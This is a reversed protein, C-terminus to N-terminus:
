FGHEGFSAVVGHPAQDGHSSLLGQQGCSSFLGHMLSIIPACDKSTDISYNLQPNHIVSSTELDVTTVNPMSSTIPISSTVTKYGDKIVKYNVSDGVNAQVTKSVM